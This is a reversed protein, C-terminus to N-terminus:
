RAGWERTAQYKPNDEPRDDYYQLLGWSGWKSWRSVSSFACLLGGGNSDWAALYQRYFEGMRPHRNAEQFLRTLPEHNEGGQIGVLHQGAEYAVLQLHFEDAIAKQSRMSEIAKPLSEKAVRELIGELGLSVIEPAKAAPVNMGFYPAIALADAHKSADNSSLVQRSVYPNVSQSALVRVLRETGGFVEEWIAFIEVSRRGTYRWAAEWTKEALKLRQGERAAHRHQEFQGNWVENSYEIYVKRQPDLLEKTQRAFNRVYDDDALHPMCFWPDAKLRNALDCLMELPLGRPTWSADSVQPRDSWRQIKSNNTQMFDMFRLCVVGNWRQLFVPHWPNTASQSEFGPMMVRINRVINGPTTRTVRLFIGGRNSDVDVLLKGPGSEAVRAAGGFEVKGDGEYLVTYRGSPYHGGEITCLPSEAWCDPELRTVWGQADLTLAPGKGWPQGKRQSIWPRSFRFVDVLPLETNWDAPGSLNIGLRSKSSSADAEPEVALVPSHQVFNGFLAALLFVMLEFRSARNHLFM